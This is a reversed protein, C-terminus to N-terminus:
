HARNSSNGLGIQGHFVCKRDNNKRWYFWSQPCMEPFPGESLDKLYSPIYVYKTGDMFWSCQPGSFYPERLSHPRQMEFFSSSMFVQFNLHNFINKFDVRVLRDLNLTSCLLGFLMLSVHYIQLLFFFRFNSFDDRIWLLILWSRRKSACSM